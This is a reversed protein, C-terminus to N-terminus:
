HRDTSLSLADPAYPDAAPPERVARGNQRELAAQLQEIVQLQRRHQATLNSLLDENGNGQADDILREYRLLADLRHALERILPNEASDTLDADEWFLDLSSPCQDPRRM